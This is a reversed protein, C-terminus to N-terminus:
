LVQLAAVSEQQVLTFFSFDTHAGLGINQAKSTEQPPYHLSRIAVIPFTTAEDFYNEPLDLGLAFIQMLKRSFALVHTYYKYMQTRFEPYAKPWSNRKPLTPDLPYPYNQEPDHPDHGITFAEKM